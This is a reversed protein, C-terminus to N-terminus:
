NRDWFAPPVDQGLETWPFLANKFTVHSVHGDVWCINAGGNHRAHPIAQGANPPSQADYAIYEGRPEGNAGSLRYVDLMLITEFPKAIQSLRATPYLGGGYRTNSGIHLYNYGYHIAYENISYDGWVDSGYLSRCIQIGGRFPCYHQGESLIGPWTRLHTGLAWQDPDYYPVFYDNSDALYMLHALGLQKLNAMCKTGNANEKARKLAPLLMAALLAIIAVVVLLEIM